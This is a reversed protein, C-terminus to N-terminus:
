VADKCPIAGCHCCKGAWLNGIGVSGHIFFRKRCKPCLFRLLWIGNIVWLGMWSFAAIAVPEDTVGFVALGIAFLPVVPLFLLFGAWLLTKGVFYPRWARAKGM